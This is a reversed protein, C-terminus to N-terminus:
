DYSYYHFPTYKIGLNNLLEVFDKESNNKLFSRMGDEISKPNFHEMLKISESESIEYHSDEAKEVDFSYKEITGDTYKFVSLFWLRKNDLPIRKRILEPNTATKPEEQLFSIAKKYKEVRKLVKDDVSDLRTTDSNHLLDALKIKTALPNHRINRVYEMYEIANDHTMLSLANIIRQSFGFARLDNFTIDGDEVVDHLLAVIVEDETDMQEALHIPHFIYPMGAKDTQDKHTDFAIRMAKKTMETYIM